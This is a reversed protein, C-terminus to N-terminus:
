QTRPESWLGQHGVITYDEQLDAEMVDRSLVRNM